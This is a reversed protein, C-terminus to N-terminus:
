RGKELLLVIPSAVFISSYTGVIIGVLMAFAFDSIAQGGFALLCVVVLVTTLSTLLTRSLTQNVSANIISKLDVGKMLKMDERIRDFVVITDNISYGVITLIAAIVPLNLQRRALIFLGSFVGLTILVDHIIALIAGLAFRFEFRWSIYIVMGLMAVAIAVIAQKWLRKAVTPYISAVTPEVKTDVPNEGGIVETVRSVLSPSKGEVTKADVAVGRHSSEGQLRFRRLNFDELDPTKKLAGRLKALQEKTVDNEFVITASQGSSFDIGFNKSWKAGFSAMGVVLLCVSLIFAKKRHSVFDVKPDHLFALMPLKTFRKSRLLFDFVVRTVVIATFMSTAIGIMLTVAFGRVPGSGINYLVIASIFTTLNADLITRFAKQYGSDIAAAIKKAATLEERIREFILVNADVAMGITLIIGAIGPLTLTARLSALVGLIILINLALAFNAIMGALLYYIVMFLVVLALGLIAASVGKRVSDTGLTPGITNQAVINLKAPLAGAKLQISLDRTEEPTFNGEIQGSGSLIESRINPASIVRDDLLIALRWGRYEGAERIRNKSRSNYERTVDAFKGTAKGSLRFLIVPESTEPDRSAWARTVESGKVVEPEELSSQLLLATRKMARSGASSRQEHEYIRLITDPPISDSDSLKQDLDSMTWEAPNGREDKKDAYEQELEAVAKDYLTLLRKEPFQPSRLRTEAVLMWRMSAQREILRRQRAVDTMGPLQVIIKNTGQRQIIPERVGTRNVRESLVRIAGATADGISVGKPKEVELVFYSGGKLDLGLSIIQSEDGEWWRQFWNRINRAVRPTRGIRTGTLTLLTERHRERESRKLSEWKPKEVWKRFDEGLNKRVKVLPALEQRLETAAIDRPIEKGMLKECASLFGEKEEENLSGIDATTVRQWFAKDLRYEDYVEQIPELIMKIEALKEEVSLRNWKLDERLEKAQKEWQATLEVKRAESLSAWKLTPYLNFLAFALIIGILILRWKVSRAM